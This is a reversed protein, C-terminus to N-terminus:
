LSYLQTGPLRRILPYWNEVVFNNVIFDLFLSDCTELTRRFRNILIIPNGDGISRYAIKRGELTIVETKSTIASNTIKDM